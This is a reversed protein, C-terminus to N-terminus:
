RAAARRDGRVPLPADRDRGAAAAPGRPRRRQGATARDGLRARLLHAPRDGRRRGLLQQAFQELLFRTRSHQHPQFVCILRKPQEAARIRRLTKECRPRITATTTTCRHGRRRRGRPLTRSGLRQMRRDLGAFSSLAAAIREWRRRAPQALIAPRPRLQARQARRADANTWSGLWAATGPAHRRPAAASRSWRTTPPRSQLRVDRGACASGPRSRGATPAKTPSSCGHRREAAPPLLRAFGAFAEVIADLSGYVDLHDEEINNILALVPHHHHFSRNFECAEAVLVGPPGRRLPAPRFGRAAPAAAAASRPSLDRRRHLEPRARLQRLSTASCPPPRARATRAAISVGTRGGARPRAGRRLEISECGAPRADLLEPHDPRIAASAIVLDCREPLRRRAAPRAAGPHGEARLADTLGARRRDSGTCIAGLGPAAHPRAREHRLRRHRRLSRSEAPIRRRTAPDGRPGPATSSLNRRPDTVPHVPRM